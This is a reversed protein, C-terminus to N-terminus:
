QREHQARMKAGIYEGHTVHLLDALRWVVHHEGADLTGDAYAVRWLLEVIRIKEDQDFADNIASTFQFFDNATRSTEEALAVLDRTEQEGLAFRARLAGTVAAREAAGRQADARMVEVLLVATALQLQRERDAPAVEAPGDLVADFFDKFVRLM